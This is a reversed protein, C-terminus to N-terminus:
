VYMGLAQSSSNKLSPNSSSAIPTKLSKEISLSNKKVLEGLTRFSAEPRKFLNGASQKGHHLMGQVRAAIETNEIDELLQKLLPSNPESLEPIAEHYVFDFGNKCFNYQDEVEFNVAYHTSLTALFPM